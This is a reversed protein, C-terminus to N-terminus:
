YLQNPPPESRESGHRRQSQRTKEVEVRWALSIIAQAQRGPVSQSHAVPQSLAKLLFNKRAAQHEALAGVPAKVAPQEPAPQVGDEHRADDVLGVPPDETVQVRDCQLSEALAHEGVDVPIDARDDRCRGRRDSKRAPLEPDVRTGPIARGLVYSRHDARME